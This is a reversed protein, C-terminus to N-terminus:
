RCPRTVRTDRNPLENAHRGRRENGGDVCADPLCIAVPDVNADRPHRALIDVEASEAPRDVNEDAFTSRARARCRPVAYEIRPDFMDSRHENRLGETVPFAAPPGSRTVVPDTVITTTPM